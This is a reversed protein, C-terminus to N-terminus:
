HIDKRIDFGDMFGIKYCLYFEESYLKNKIDFLSELAIKNESPLKSQLEKYDNNFKKSLNIYCQDKLLTQYNEEFRDEIYSNLIISSMIEDGNTYKM